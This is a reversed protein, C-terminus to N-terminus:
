RRCVAARALLEGTYLVSFLRVSRTPWTSALGCALLDCTILFAVQERPANVAAGVILPVPVAGAYMVLVHQIGRTILRPAPLVEDVPHVAESALPKPQPVASASM